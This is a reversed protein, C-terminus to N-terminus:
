DDKKEEEFEAAPKPEEVDVYMLLEIYRDQISGTPVMNEAALSFGGFTIGIKDNIVKIKINMSDHEEPISNIKEKLEKVNM